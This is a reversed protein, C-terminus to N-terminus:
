PRVPSRAFPFFTADTAIEDKPPADTPTEDTPTPDTPLASGVDPLDLRSFADTLEAATARAEPERETM